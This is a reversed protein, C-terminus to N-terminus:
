PRPGCAAPVYVLGRYLTVREARFKADIFKNKAELAAMKQYFANARTVNVNRTTCVKYALVSTRHEAERINDANVESRWALLGFIALIAAFGFLLRHDTIKLTPAAPGVGGRPGREGQEGQNGRQQQQETM